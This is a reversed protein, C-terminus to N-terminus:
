SGPEPAAPALLVLGGAMVSWFAPVATILLGTIWPAVPVAAAGVVSETMSGTVAGAVTAVPATTGVAAAGAVVALTPPPAVPPFPPPRHLGELCRCHGRRSQSETAETGPRM